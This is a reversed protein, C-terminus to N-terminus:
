SVLVIQELNLTMRFVFYIKAFLKTGDLVNICNNKSVILLM